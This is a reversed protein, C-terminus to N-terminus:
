RALPSIEELMKKKTEIGMIAMIIGASLLPVGLFILIELPSLDSALWAGGLFIAAVGTIRSVGVAWGSGTGRVDTPYVEAAYSPFVGALSLGMAYVIIVPGALTLVDSIGVALMIGVLLTSAGGLIPFLTLIPRRGWGDYLVALLFGFPIAIIDVIAVFFYTESSALGSMLLISPFWVVFGFNFFGWAGGYFWNLATRKWYRRAWLKPIGSLTEAPHSGVATAMSEITVHEPADVGSLAEVKEVSRLAENIRGKSALYRPSEPIYRKIFPILAIPAFGVAFLFRWGLLPMLTWAVGAAILYGVGISVVGVLIVSRGRLRAPMYESIITFALPVAGGVGVGMIGCNVLVWPFGIEAALPAFGNVLETLAFIIIGWIFTKIRGIRDALMGFAIAGILTGAIGIIPHIRTFAPTLGWERSYEPIVFSLTAVDMNDFAVAIFVLFVLILHFKSFQLRELRELFSLDVSSANSM